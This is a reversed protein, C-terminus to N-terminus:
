ILGGNFSRIPKSVETSCSTTGQLSGPSYSLKNVEINNQAKMVM